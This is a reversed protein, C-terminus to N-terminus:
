RAVSKDKLGNLTNLLFRSLEWTAAKQSKQFYFRSEDAYDFQLGLSVMPELKNRNAWVHANQIRTLAPSVYKNMWLM